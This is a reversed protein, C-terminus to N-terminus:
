PVLETININGLRVSKVQVNDGTQDYRISTNKERHPPFNHLDVNGWVYGVSYAHLCLKVRTQKEEVQKRSSIISLLSCVQFETVAFLGTLYVLM